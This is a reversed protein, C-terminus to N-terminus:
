LQKSDNKTESLYEVDDAVFKYYIAAYQDEFKRGKEQQRIKQEWNLIWHMPVPLCFEM